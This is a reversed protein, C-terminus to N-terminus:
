GHAHAVDGGIGLRESTQRDEGRPLRHHRISGRRAVSRGHPVGTIAERDQAAAGMGRAGLRMVARYGSCTAFLDTAQVTLVESWVTVRIHANDHSILKDASAPQVRGRSSPRVWGSV